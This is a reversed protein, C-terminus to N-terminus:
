ASNTTSGARSRTQPQRNTRKAGTSRRRAAKKVPKGSARAAGASPTSSAKYSRRGRVETAVVADTLGPIEGMLWDLMRQEDGRISAALTATDMDGVSRALREIATYTAIELAETAYADKADKLIKEEGGTGRVLDLPAKGLALTQGLVSQLLGIGLTLPNSGDGLQRLRKQVREAHSRTELLHSELGNRHGGRPTIAIQSQLVRVLAEEMGHAENLYQVIKQKAQNM